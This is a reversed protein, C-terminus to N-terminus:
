RARYYYLDSSENATAVFERTIDEFRHEMRPNVLAGTTISAADFLAPVGTKAQRNM